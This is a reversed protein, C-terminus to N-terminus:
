CECSYESIFMVVDIRYALVNFNLSTQWNEVTWVEELHWFQCESWALSEYLDFIFQYNTRQSTSHISM